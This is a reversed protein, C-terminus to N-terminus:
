KAEVGHAVVGLRISEMLAEVDMSSHASSLTFRFHGGPPSGPYDIFSPFIGWDKLHDGFRKNREADMLTVSLIPSASEFQPLGFSRLLKKASLAYDRLRLVRDLDRDLVEVAKKAAAAMPIPIPTSGIFARSTSRVKSILGHSGLVFGGYTGFAKSLTGVQIISERNLHWESWSGKGNDGVVGVAHADDLVLMGDHDEAIKVLDTLPPSDGVSAFISDTAILPREKPQLHEKLKAQLDEPDSTKYTIMELRACLAADVLSGHAREDLFVKDFEDAIGQFLITNAAYGTPTLLSAETAFFRALSEELEGYIIHNATTVRSGALSLGQDDLTVMLTRHVDPNQTLRHYDNGGFFLLKRGEHYVRLRGTFQLPPGLDM